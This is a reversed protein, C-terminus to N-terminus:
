LKSAVFNDIFQKLTIHAMVNIDYQPGDYGKWESLGEYIIRKAEAKSFRYWQILKQLGQANRYECAYQKLALEQLYHVKDEPLQHQEALMVARVFNRRGIEFDMEAELLQTQPQAIHRESEALSRQTPEIQENLQTRETHLQRIQEELRNLDVKTLGAEDTLQAAKEYSEERSAKDKEQSLQDLKHQRGQYEVELEHVKAELENRLQLIEEKLQAAKEYDKKASATEAEQVLMALRERKLQYESFEDNMKDAM